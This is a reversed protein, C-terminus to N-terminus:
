IHNQYLTTGIERTQKHNDQTVMVVLLSGNNCPYYVNNGETTMSLRRGDPQSDGLEKEDIAFNAMKFQSLLDDGVSGEGAVEQTEARSLIDDIDM